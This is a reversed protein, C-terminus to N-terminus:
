DAMGKYHLVMFVWFSPDPSNGPQHVLISGYAVIDSGFEAPVSAGQSLIKGKTKEGSQQNTDKFTRQLLGLDHPSELLNISGM